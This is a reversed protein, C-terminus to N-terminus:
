FQQILKEKLKTECFAFDLSKKNIQSFIEFGWGFVNHLDQYEKSLSTAFFPPDDTSISVALDKNFLPKGTEIEM